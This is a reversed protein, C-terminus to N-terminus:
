GNIPQLGFNQFRQGERHFYDAIGVHLHFFEVPRHTTEVTVVILLIAEEM